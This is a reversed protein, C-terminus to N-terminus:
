KAFEVVYQITAPMGQATQVGELEVWFRAGPKVVARDVEWIVCSPVGYSATSVRFSKLALPDGTKDYDKDLATLKVKVSEDVKKFKKPNLSVSWAIQPAFHTLPMLGRAPYCVLDYDPAQKRSTDFVHMAAYKGEKGLGIKQLAPNLMWRRHGLHAINFKDTDDMWGDMCKPYDTLGEYLNSEGAGKAAIKYEDEPWGPNRPTHTMEGLKHCIRAAAAAYKCLEDDVEMDDHPLGALYRHAKLRRLGADREAAAPDAPKELPAREIDALDRKIKDLGRPLVVVGDRYGQSLSVEGKLYDTRWGNLKGHRYTAKVRPQGDPNNELYEGHRKGQKYATTIHPKGDPHFSAYPGDRRGDDDVSYKAKLKGNDHREEVERATLTSALVLAALSVLGARIM